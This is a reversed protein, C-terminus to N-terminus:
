DLCCCFHGFRRSICETLDVYGFALPSLLDLLVEAEGVDGNGVTISMNTM